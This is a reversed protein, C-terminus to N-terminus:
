VVKHMIYLRRTQRNEADIFYINLVSLCFLVIWVHGIKMITLYFSSLNKCTLPFVVHKSHDHISNFWLFKMASM